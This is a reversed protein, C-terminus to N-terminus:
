NKRRYAIILVGALVVIMAGVLTMEPVSVDVLVVPVPCGEQCVVGANHGSQGGFEVTVDALDGVACDGGLFLVTYSGDSLTSTFSSTSTGNHDCIVQVDVGEVPTVGDSLYVSGEVNVDARVMNVALAFVFFVMLALITKKM